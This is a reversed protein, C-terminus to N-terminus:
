TTAAVSCSLLGLKESVRKQLLSQFGGPPANKTYPTLHIRRLPLNGSGLDNLM